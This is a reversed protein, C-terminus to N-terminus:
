ADDQRGRGTELFTVFGEYCRGCLDFRQAAGSRPQGPSWLQIRASSEGVITATRGPIPDGCADCVYAM